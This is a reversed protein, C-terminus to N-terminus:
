RIEYIEVPSSTAEYDDDFMGDMYAPGVWIWWSQKRRLFIPYPSGFLQVVADGARVKGPGICLRGSATVFLKNARCVREVHWYIGGRDDGSGLEPDCASEHISM